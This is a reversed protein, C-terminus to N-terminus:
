GAPIFNSADWIEGTSETLNDTDGREVNIEWDTWVCNDIDAHQDTNIVLLYAFNFPMSDITGAQGIDFVTAEGSIQDIGVMMLHINDQDTSIDYVGSNAIYVVDYGMEQIGDRRPRITGIGNLNAEVRVPYPFYNSQEYDLLLLRIASRALMEVPYINLQELVNFFGFADNNQSMGRWIDAVIKVGYDRTLSDFYVYEGYIRRISDNDFYGMCRDTALLYDPMHESVADLDPFVQTQVWVAPAEYLMIYPEARDYGFQVNHHIEHAVVSQVLAYALEPNELHGMDNDIVIYGYSADIEITDTAPNDGISDGNQAYATLGFLYLNQVYIDLRQDGGEGCDTLPFAFGLEEIQVELSYEVADRIIEVYALRTSDRGERTYHIVFNETEFKIVEGTLEPRPVKILNDCDLDDIQFQAQATIPMMVLIVISWIMRKVM